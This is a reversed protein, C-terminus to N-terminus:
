HRSAHAEELSDNLKREADVDVVIDRADAKWTVFPWLTCPDAKHDSSSRLHRALDSLAHSYKTRKLQMVEGVDTVRVSNERQVRRFGRCQECDNGPAHQLTDLQDAWEAKQDPNMRSDLVKLMIRLEAMVRDVAKSPVYRIDDPTVPNRDHQSLVPTLVRPEWPEDLM